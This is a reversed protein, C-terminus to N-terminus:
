HGARKRVFSSDLVSLVSLLDSTSCLSFQSQTHAAAADQFSHEKGDKKKGKNKQFVSLAHERGDVPESQIGEVSLM